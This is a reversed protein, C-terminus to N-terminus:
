DEDLEDVDEDLEYIEGERGTLEFIKNIDLHYITVERRSKINMFTHLASFGLKEIFEKACVQYDALYCTVSRRFSTAFQNLIEMIDEEEISAYPSYTDTDAESFGYLQLSGCCDFHNNFKFLLREGKPSAFVVRQAQFKIKGKLSKDFAQIDEEKSSAKLIEVGQTYTGDNHEMFSWSFIYDEFLEPYKEVFKMGSYTDRPSAGAIQNQLLYFRDDIKIVRGTVYQRNITAAVYDKHKIPSSDKLMKLLKKIIKM